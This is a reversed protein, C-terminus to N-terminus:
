LREVAREVSWAILARGVGIRRHEPAVEGFLDARDLRDASGPHWVQAWGMVEGDRVAVRTDLALDVYSASLDDALEEDTLVRPVGDHAEARRVLDGIAPVDAM